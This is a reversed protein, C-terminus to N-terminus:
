IGVSSLLDLYKKFNHIAFGFLFGLDILPNPPEPGFGGISFKLFNIYIFKTKWDYKPFEKLDKCKRLKRYKEIKM